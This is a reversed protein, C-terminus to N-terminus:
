NKKKKGEEEKNNFRVFKFVYFLFKVKNELNILIICACVLSCM